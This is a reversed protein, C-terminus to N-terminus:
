DWRSRKGSDELRERHGAAAELRHEGSGVILGEGKGGLLRGAGRQPHLLPDRVLGFDRLHCVRESARVEDLREGILHLFRHVRHQPVDVRLAAHDLRHLATVDLAADGLPGVFLLPVDLAPGLRNEPDVEEAGGLPLSTSMTKSCTPFSVKGMETNTALRNPFITIQPAVM